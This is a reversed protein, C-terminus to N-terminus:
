PTKVADLLRKVLARDGTVTVLGRAEAEDLRRDHWTLLTWTGGDTTVAAAHSGDPPGLSVGAPSLHLQETTDDVTLHIAGTAGALREPATFSVLSHTAFRGAFRASAPSFVPARDLARAVDARHIIHDFIRAGVVIWLPARGTWFWAPRGLAAEDVPQM